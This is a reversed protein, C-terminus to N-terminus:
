LTAHTWCYGLCPPDKPPHCARILFYLLSAKEAADSLSHVERGADFCVVLQYPPFSM